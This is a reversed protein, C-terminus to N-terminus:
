INSAFSVKLYNTNLKKGSIELSKVAKEATTTTITTASKTAAASVHTSEIGSVVPSLTILCALASVAIKQNKKM